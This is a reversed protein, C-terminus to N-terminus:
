RNFEGLKAGHEHEISMDWTGHGHGMSMDVVMSYAEGHVYIDINAGTSTRM